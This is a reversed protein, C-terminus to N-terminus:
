FLVAVAESIAEGRVDKAVIRGDRDLLFSRPLWRVNYRRALEGEERGPEWIHPWAMEKEEVMSVLAEQEWDFSVGVIVFGQDSYM